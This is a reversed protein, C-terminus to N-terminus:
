GPRLVSYMRMFYQTALKLMGANARSDNLALPWVIAEERYGSMM